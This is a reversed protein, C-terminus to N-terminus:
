KCLPGVRVALAAEILKYTYLRRRFESRRGYKEILSKGDAGGVSEAHAAFLIAMGLDWPGAPQDRPFTAQVIQVLGGCGYAGQLYMTVRRASRLATQAISTGYVGGIRVPEVTGRAQALRQLSPEILLAKADKLDSIVWLQALHALLETDLGPLPPSKYDLEPDRPPTGNTIRDAQDRAFHIADLISLAGAYAQDWPPPLDMM